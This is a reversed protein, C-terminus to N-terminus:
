KKIPLRLWLEPLCVTPTLLQLCVKDVRKEFGTTPACLSPQSARGRRGVMEWKEEVDAERLVSWFQGLICTMLFIGLEWNNSAYTYKQGNLRELSMYSLTILFREAVSNTKRKNNVGVSLDRAQGLTASNQEVLSELCYSM